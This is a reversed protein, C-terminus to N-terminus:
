PKMITSIFNSFKSEENYYKLLVELIEIQDYGLKIKTGDDFKIKIGNGYDKLKVANKGRVLSTWGNDNNSYSVSIKQNNEENLVVGANYMRTEGDGPDCVYTIENKM